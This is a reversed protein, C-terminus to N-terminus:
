QRNIIDATIHIFSYIFLYISSLINLLLINKTKLAQMDDSTIDCKETQIAAVLDSNHRTTSM